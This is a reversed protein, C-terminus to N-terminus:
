RNDGLRITSLSWIDLERLLSSLCDRFRGISDEMRDIILTLIRLTLLNIGLEGLNLLLWLTNMLLLTLGSCPVLPLFLVMLIEQISGSETGKKFLTLIYTTLDLKLDPINGNNTTSM